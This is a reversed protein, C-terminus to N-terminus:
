CSEAAEVHVCRAQHQHRSWQHLAVKGACAQDAHKCRPAFRCGAAWLGPAPVNGEIVPLPTGPPNIEPRCGMLARTYPHAPHDFVDEVSGTEVIEGAYMVAVDDCMEAVLGFDHTVLLMGLGRQRQLNRLLAIIRKQVSVDLATTPEDAIIFDANASMAMAILVRQRMGGSLSDPYQQLLHGADDLGVDQLLRIAHQRAAEADLNLHLHIVELMQSGISFVPNLATMPEQFIMSVRGGRMKRLTVDDMAFISQQDLLIDGGTRRIGQHEGLRLIAQATLTKGCGSEGVLGMVRGRQLRLSLNSVAIIDADSHDTRAPLALSLDRIELM